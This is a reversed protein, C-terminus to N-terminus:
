YLPMVNGRSARASNALCLLFLAIILPTYKM